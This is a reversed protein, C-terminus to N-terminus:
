LGQPPGNSMSRPSNFPDDPRPSLEGRDPQQATGGQAITEAQAGIENAAAAAAAGTASALRQGINDGQRVGQQAGEVARNAVEKGAQLVQEGTRKAQDKLQRSARGMLRDEAKTTPVLVGAILGAAFVAGGLLLPNADYTDILGQRAREATHMAGSAIDTVTDKTAAASDRVWEGADSIRNKVGAATESVRETINRGTDRVWEGAQRAADRLRHHPEESRSEEFADRGPESHRATGYDGSRRASARRDVVLWMIGLGVLIAPVPNDKVGQIFRKSALGTGESLGDVFKDSLNKLSLKEQVQGMTEDMRARTSDIEREIQAAKSSERGTV